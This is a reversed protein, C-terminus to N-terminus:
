TQAVHSELKVGALAVILRALPEEKVYGNMRGSLNCCSRVYSRMFSFVNPQSVCGFGRQPVEDNLLLRKQEVSSCCNRM